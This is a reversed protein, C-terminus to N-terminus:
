RREPRQGPDDRWWRRPLGGPACPRSRPDCRTEHASHIVRAHPLAREVAREARAKSSYLGPWPFWGAGTHEVVRWFGYPTGEPVEVDNHNYPDLKLHKVSLQM